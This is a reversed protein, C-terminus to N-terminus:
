PATTKYPHDAPLLSAVGWKHALQGEARQAQSTNWRGDFLILEGLQMQGSYGQTFRAFLHRLTVPLNYEFLIIAPTAYQGPFEGPTASSTLEVANYRFRQAYRNSNVRGDTSINSASLFVDVYQDLSQNHGGLLM